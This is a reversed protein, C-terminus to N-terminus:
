LRPDPDPAQEGQEADDVEVYPPPQSPQGPRAPEIARHHEGPWQRDDRQDGAPDRGLDAALGPDDVAHHTGRPGDGTCVADRDAVAREDKDIERECGRDGPGQAAEAVDREIDGISASTGTTKM